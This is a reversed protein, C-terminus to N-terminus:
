NNLIIQKGQWNSGDKHFALVGLGGTSIFIDGSKSVAMAGGYGVKVSIQVVTTLSDKGVNFVTDGALVCIAGHPDCALSRIINRPSPTILGRDSDREGDILIEWKEKSDRHYIGRSMGDLHDVGATVWIDNGNPSIIELIPKNGPVGSSDGNEKGSLHLWKPQKQKLDISALMGGWEGKNWGAYLISGHLFQVNGLPRPEFEFYFQPTEPIVCSKWEEEFWWLTNGTILAAKNSTPILRIDKPELDHFQNPVEITIEKGARTESRLTLKNSRMGLFFVGDTFTEADLIKDMGANQFASTTKSSFDALKVHQTMTSFNYSVVIVADRYPILKFVSTMEDRSELNLDVHTAAHALPFGALMFIVLLSFQTWFTLLQMVVNKRTIKVTKQPEVKPYWKRVFRGARSKAAESRLASCCSLVTSIM